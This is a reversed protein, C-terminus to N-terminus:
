SLVITKSNEKESIKKKESTNEVIAFMKKVHEPVNTEVIHKSTNAKRSLYEHAFSRTITRVNAFDLIIKKEPYSEINEFMEKANHRFALNPSIIQSIM